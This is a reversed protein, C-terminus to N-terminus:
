DANPDRGIPAGREDVQPGPIATLTHIQRFKGDIYRFTHVDPGGSESSGFRMFVNIVGKEEDILYDRNTLYLVGPPMGLECSAHPDGSRNTYAGGELRACPTGWPIDTFKDMFGDLYANAGRIMEAPDTLQYKFLDTWDEQQTYYLYADANFLWDGEKTVISDVRYVDGENVFLRTGIVYPVPGTVIIETFTKCRVPDHFSMAHDIELATNWLGASADVTEMNELYHANSVLPLGSLSGSRQGEVYADTLAKLEDKTCTPRDVRTALGEVGPRAQALAPSATIMTGIAAAALTIAKLM